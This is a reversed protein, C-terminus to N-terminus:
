SEHPMQRTRGRQCSDAQLPTCTRFLCSKRQYRMWRTSRSRLVFSTAELLEHWFDVVVIVIVCEDSTALTLAPILGRGFEFLHGAGQVAADRNLAVRM